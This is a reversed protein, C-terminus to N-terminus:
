RSEDRGKSKLTRGKRGGAELSVRAWWRKFRSRARKLKEFQKSNYSVVRFGWGGGEADSLRTFIVWSSRVGMPVPMSGRRGYHEEPMLNTHQTVGAMFSFSRDNPVGNRAFAVLGLVNAVVSALLAMGYSILLTQMHYAYLDVTRTVKVM